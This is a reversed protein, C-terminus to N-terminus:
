HNQERHVPWFLHGIIIGIALPLVPFQVAWSQLHASVTAGAPQAFTAWVDFAGTVALLAILALAIWFGAQDM